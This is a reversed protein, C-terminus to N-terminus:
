STPASGAQDIPWAGLIRTLATSERLEKVAQAVNADEPHGALELFFHYEGPRTRVPRSQIFSLNIDHRRVTGLVDHLAGVRDHVSLMLATRDKGTPAGPRKGIVYFRTSNTAVDQINTSIPTLGYAEAATLPGIAAAGAEAVARKAAEGTSAMEVTRASPLNRALWDRCQQLVQAHSYVVEYTDRTDSALLNHSVPLIVESYIHVDHESLLDLTEGITGSTSNEIPVVGYTQESREVQDFVARFSALPVAAASRGFHREAAQHSFTHRPGLYAVREPEELSRSASIVERFISRIHEDNFPGPNLDAVRQLIERERAPAFTPVDNAAKLGGIRRVIDARRALLEVLEADADDIAQRLDDIPDPSM